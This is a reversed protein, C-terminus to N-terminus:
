CVIRPITQGVIADRHQRLEQLRFQGFALDARDGVVHLRREDPLCDGPSNAAGEEGRGVLVECAEVENGALDVLGCDPGQVAAREHVPRLVHDQDAARSGAFGTDCCGEADLGDLMMAALDAEEGGDFQDVGEFLFLGFALGPLVGFAQGLEVETRLSNIGWILEQDEDM